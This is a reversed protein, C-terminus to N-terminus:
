VFINLTFTHVSFNYFFMISNVLLSPLFVERAYACQSGLNKGIGRYQPLLNLFHNQSQGIKTRINKLICFFKLEILGFFDQLKIKYMIHLLMNFIFILIYSFTIIFMFWRYLTFLYIMKCLLKSNWLSILILLLRNSSRVLYASINFIKYSNYIACFLM